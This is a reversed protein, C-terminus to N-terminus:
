PPAAEAFDLVGQALRKAAIECYREDLEVGIAKRGLRKAAVLTSGSGTFPDLVVDGEVTANKMIWAAVDVPYVAPHDIGNPVSRVSVVCFDPSRATGTELDSFGNVWSSAPGSTSAMGVRDSPRGNAKAYVHPRNTTSFWLIREWSRRLRCPDGLPPASSKVWILEDCEVWGDQRLAMRSRHVYDSMEGDSVHERINIFVSAKPTLSQRLAAMWRCTFMAYSSEPVGDYLGSRQEAYPPSTVVCGVGSLTPLVGLCDGHYLTVLDDAYYPEVSM